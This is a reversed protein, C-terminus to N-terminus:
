RCGQSLNAEPVTRNIIRIGCSGRYIILTNRAKLTKDATLLCVDISLKKHIFKSREFYDIATAMQRAFKLLEGNNRQEANVYNSLSDVAFNELLITIQTDTVISGWLRQVNLCGFDKYAALDNLIVNREEPTLDAVIISLATIGKNSPFLIQRRKVKGVEYISDFPYEVNESSPGLQDHRWIYQRQVPQLGQEAIFKSLKKAQGSVILENAACKISYYKIINDKVCLTFNSRERGSYMSPPADILVCQKESALVCDVNSSNLLSAWYYYTSSVLEYARRNM